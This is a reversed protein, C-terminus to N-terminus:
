KNSYCEQEPSLYGSVISRMQMFKTNSNAQVIYLTRRFPKQRKLTRENGGRGGVCYRISLVRLHHLHPPIDICVYTYLTLILYPTWGPLLQPNVHRTIDFSSQVYQIGVNYTTPTKRRNVCYKSIQWYTSPPRM